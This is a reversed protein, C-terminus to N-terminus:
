SCLAYHGLLSSDEPEVSPVEKYYAQYATMTKAQNLGTINQLATAHQVSFGWFNDPVGSAMMLTTVNRKIDEICKEAKGKQFQHYPIIRTHIINHQACFQQVASSVLEPANDTHIRDPLGTLKCIHNIV